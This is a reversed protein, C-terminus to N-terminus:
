ITILDIPLSDTFLTRVTRYIIQHARSYFSPEELIDIVLSVARSDILIAGLVAEELELAQPILKGKELNSFRTTPKTPRTTWNPETQMNEFIRM